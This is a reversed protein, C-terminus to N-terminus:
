SLRQGYAAKAGAEERLMSEGREGGIPSSFFLYFAAQLISNIYFFANLENQNWYSCIQHRRTAARVDIAM